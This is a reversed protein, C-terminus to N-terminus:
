RTLACCFLHPYFVSRRPLKLNLAMEFNTPLQVPLEAPKAGRLIRDVYSAARRWIDVRDVGYSLLGGARAAESLAYVAPVNNRAGASIIPARPGLAFVDPIVVLGRGPERGAAVDFGLLTYGDPPSRVVAEAALNTAAGPRDVFQQGLRESLWQGMLRTFIDTAASKAGCRL